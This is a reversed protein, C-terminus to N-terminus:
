VITWWLSQLTSVTRLGCIKEEQKEEEEEGGRGKGRKRRKFIFHEMVKCTM